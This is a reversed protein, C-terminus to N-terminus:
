ILNSIEETERNKATSSWGPILFRFFSRRYCARHRQVLSSAPTRITVSTQYVSSIEKMMAREGDYMESATVETTM